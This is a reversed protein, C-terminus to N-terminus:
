DRVIMCYHTRHQGQKTVPFVSVKDKCDTGEKTRVTVEISLPENNSMRSVVEHRLRQVAEHGVLQAATLQLAEAKTYGYARTFAANVLFVEGRPYTILAIPDPCTEFAKLVIDSIEDTILRSTDVLCGVLGIPEGTSSKLLSKYLVVPIEGEPTTMIFNTVDYHIRVDKFRRAIAPPFLDDVTKSLAKIKTLGMFDFFSSSGRIYGGVKDTYFMPVPISSILNHQFASLDLVKFETSRKYTVDRATLVFSPGGLEKDTGGLRSVVIELYRPLGSALDVVTWERHISDEKDFCSDPYLDCLAKGIATDPSIGLMSAAATNIVTIKRNKDLVILGDELVNALASIVYQSKVIERELVASIATSSRRIEELDSKLHDNIM